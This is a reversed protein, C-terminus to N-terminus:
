RKEPQRRLLGRLLPRIDESLESIHPLVIRRMWQKHMRRNLANSPWRSDSRPDWKSLCELLIMGCSFMDVKSTYNRQEELFEPALYIPTGTFTDLNGQVHHQATGFYGLIATDDEMLINSPKVDRHVIDVSHIYALASLLQTAVVITSRLNLDKPNLCSPIYDEIM